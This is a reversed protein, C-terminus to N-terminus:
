GPPAFYFAQTLSSSEWPVQREDTAQLVEQRVTRFVEEAALGPRRITRALASSYPSGAGPAGDSAVEGPATAYAILTGRPGDMRALGRDMSRFSRSLPNNRCADLILINVQSRAYEMQRLAEDALVAEVPVDAERDIQSGVPILYNEGGVQVGHGSFYFLAVAGPGARELRAGFDRIASRMARQDADHVEVVDFGIARLSAAITAADHPPNELDAGGGYRANGVVVAIRHEPALKAPSRQEAQIAPPSPAPPAAAIPRPVTSAMSANASLRTELEALDRTVEEDGPKRVLYARYDQRALELEGLKDYAQARNYYPKPFAADM